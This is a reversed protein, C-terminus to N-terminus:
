RGIGSTDAGGHHPLTDRLLYAFSEVAPLLASEDFDFTATHHGNALDAGVIFYTAQGGEEIVRQMLYTADESVNVSQRRRVSDFQGADRMGREGLTVLEDSPSVTIAKGQVDIDVSVDHMDAASRLIRKARTEMYENLSTSGGRVELELEARGPIANRTTGSELRGVNVRTVGEEHRPIGLLNESATTAARLANHGDQPARGAHASQGRYTADLKTSSLFGEAGAVVTGSPVGLGLHYAFLYDVDSLYPSEALPVGGRLGEEAPQFVLLLTGDFAGPDEIIARALGLAITVHGDHGCAHMAEPTVSAFSERVPRHDDCTAETQSLADLDCRFAVKPGDGFSRKAVLGTVDGMREFYDPAGWERARSRAAVVVGEDPVGLRDEPDMIEPGFHLDFGLADLEDAVLATTRFEQWGPEPHRHIDRRLSVLEERSVM